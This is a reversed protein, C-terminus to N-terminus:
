ILEFDNTQKNIQDSIWKIVYDKIQQETTLKNM